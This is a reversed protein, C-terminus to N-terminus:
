ETVNEAKKEARLKWQKLREIVQSAQHPKLWQLAAVGAERNVFACLASEDPNKVIGMQYMELWLARIKKSQADDALPRTPKNYSLKIGSAKMLDMLHDLVMKRGRWDLEAASYKRTLSFLMSRYESGENRDKTDMGLLGAFQHIKGIEKHRLATASPYKYVM